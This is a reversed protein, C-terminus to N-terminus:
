DEQEASEVRLIAGDVEVVRVGKGVLADKGSVKWLTDDVKIKGVGNVIADTLTFVRGVYQQGRRNLTPADSEIPNNKLYVRWAIVSIISLITFTFLQLEWSITPIVLLLLGVAGASIGMWLFFAGPALIELIILLAAAIWWHWFELAALFEIM